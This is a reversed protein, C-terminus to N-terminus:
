AAKFARLYRAAMDELFLQANLPHNAVRRLKLLENYCHIFRVASRDKGLKELSAQENPFFRVQGAQACLSLDFLWKALLGVLAELNLGAQARILGEWRAALTIPTENTQRFSAVLDPLAKWRGDQLWEAATLPSDGLLAMLADPRSQGSEQELWASALAADPREVSIRRCRSLITPLLQRWRYSILLFYVTAPPEELIKLLSNAASINMAEAPDIVIVRKGQRHSGTFVFDELARIQDIKIQKRGSKKEEGEAAEDEEPAVYRFDPHNGAALWRCADCVGCAFGEDGEQECLLRAALAQALHDQGWGAEGTLLLAHPLQDRKGFSRKWFSEQWPLLTNVSM